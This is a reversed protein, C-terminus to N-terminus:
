NINTQTSDKRLKSSKYKEPHFPNLKVLKTKYLNFENLKKKLEKLDAKQDYGLCIIDPQCKKIVAYRNTLSGLIIKDALNSKVIVQSRDCENNQPLRDKINKVTKDRAIVVILYNGFERAQKLFSKHGLHFIDFTGFTMIKIKDRIPKKIKTVKIQPM